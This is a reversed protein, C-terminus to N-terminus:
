DEPVYEIIDGPQCDLVKCFAAITNTSVSMGRRMNQLTPESVIKEKKIKYTTLNKLKMLHFLKNYIIPV